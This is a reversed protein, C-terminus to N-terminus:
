PDHQCEFPDQGHYRLDGSQDKVLDISANAAPHGLDDATLQLGQRFGTLDEADGVQRLDGAAAIHVEEDLLLDDRSTRHSGDAWERSSLARIDPPSTIVSVVRLSAM